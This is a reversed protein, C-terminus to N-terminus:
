YWEGVMAIAVFLFPFLVIRRLLTEVINLREGKPKCMGIEFLLGIFFVQGTIMVLDWFTNTGGLFFGNFIRDYWECYPSLSDLYKAEEDWTEFELHTQVNCVANNVMPVLLFAPVYAWTNEMELKM